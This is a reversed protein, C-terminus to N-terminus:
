VLDTPTEFELRIYISEQIRFLNTYISAVHTFVREQREKEYAVLAERNRSEFGVTLM